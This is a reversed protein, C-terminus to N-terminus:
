KPGWLLCNFSARLPFAHIGETLPLSPGTLLVSGVALNRDEEGAVPTM